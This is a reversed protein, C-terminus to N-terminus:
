MNYVYFVARSEEDNKIINSSLCLRIMTIIGFRVINYALTNERYKM